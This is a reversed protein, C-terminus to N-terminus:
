DFFGEGLLKKAKRKAIQNTLTNEPAQEIPFDLVEQLLADHLEKNFTMRCYTEAFTTHVLLFSRNSIELAREFHHRSRKFDGGIMAPKSGYLAGFFVHAAGNETTEDLELVRAMIKEVIILDAMAEPSGQQQQIWTLWGFAGWFLKDADGSTVSKFISDDKKAQGIPFFTSILKKETTALRQASLKEATQLHM